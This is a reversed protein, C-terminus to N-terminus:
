VGLPPQFESEPPQPLSVQVEVVRKTMASASKAVITYKGGDEVATSRIFLYHQDSDSLFLYYKGRCVEEGHIWEVNGESGLSSVQCELTTPQGVSTVVEDILIRIGPGPIEGSSTTAVNEEDLDQDFSLSSSQQRKLQGPVACAHFEPTYKQKSAM